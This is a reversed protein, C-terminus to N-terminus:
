LYKEYVKWIDLLGKEGKTEYTYQILINMGEGKPPIIINNGIHLIMVMNHNIENEVYM